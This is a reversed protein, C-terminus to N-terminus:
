VGALRSPQTAISIECVLVSWLPTRVITHETIMLNQLEFYLTKKELPTPACM